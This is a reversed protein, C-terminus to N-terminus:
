LLFDGSQLTLADNLTILMDARRDGDVDATIRTQGDSTVARLDGKQGTFATAGIFDFAQDGTRTSNADVARLDIKDGAAQTFDRIVDGSSLSTWVFRDTGAGGTLQDKGAGGHLRDAGSGGRIWDDGAGGLLVDNGDGGILRDTGAAGLLTDGGTEGSLVDDGTNGTLRDRGLGGSITDDGGRGDIVDAQATGTLADATDTISYASFDYGFSNLTLSGTGSVVEAGFEVGTLYDDGAVVGNAVLFRLIADLDVTGQLYQTDIIVAVYRWDIGEGATFGERVFVDASFNADTYTLTPADTPALNGQHTWVMLETTISQAGGAPTDTMWLDFAVNFDDTQGAISTDIAIDLNRLDSLRTIIDVPGSQGWPSYGFAIEPYALVRDRPADPYTWSFQVDRTLDATDYTIQQTFDTGNVFPAVNWVNNNLRFGNLSVEEFNASLTNRM